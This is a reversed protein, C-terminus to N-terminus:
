LGDKEWRGDGGSRLAGDGDVDGRGGRKLGFDVICLGWVERGMEWKGNGKEEEASVFSVFFFIGSCVKYQVAEYGGKPPMDQPM